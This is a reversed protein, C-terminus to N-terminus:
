ASRSMNAADALSARHQDIFQVSGGSSDRRRQAFTALRHGHRLSRRASQDRRCQQRDGTRRRVEEAPRHDVRGAGVAGPHSARHFWRRAHAAGRLLEGVIEGSRHGDLDAGVPPDALGAGGPGGIRVAIRGPVAPDRHRRAGVDRRSVQERSRRGLRSCPTMRRRPARAGRTVGRIPRRSVAACRRDASSRVTVRRDLAHRRPAPGRRPRVPRVLDHLPEVIRHCAVRRDARVQRRLSRPRRLTGSPAPVPPVTEPEVPEPPAVVTTHETPDDCSGTVPTNNADGNYTAVWRYTGVVETVVAPSTATGNVLAVDPFTALPTGSCAPDAPGFLRFTVTGTPGFGGIVTATDQTSVGLTGTAPSAQTVLTPTAPPVTVLEAADPCM